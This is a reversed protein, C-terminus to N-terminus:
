VRRSYDDIITLFYSDGHTMTRTPSQTMGLICHDCFKSKEIKDGNLLNEKALELLGKESVLGLRM